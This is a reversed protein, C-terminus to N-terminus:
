TRLIIAQSGVGEYLQPTQVEYKMKYFLTQWHIENISVKVARVVTKRSPLKVGPRLTESYNRFGEGEVISFPLFDSTILQVVPSLADFAAKEPKGFHHEIKTQDSNSLDGGGVSSSPTNKIEAILSTLRVYINLYTQVLNLLPQYAKTKTIQVALFPANWPLPRVRRM